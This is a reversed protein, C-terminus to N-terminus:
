VLRGVLHMGDGWPQFCGIIRQDQAGRLCTILSVWLSGWVGFSTRAVIPFTIHHMAGPRANAVIFPAAIGYGIWVCLWAQWWTMGLQVSSSVIMWSDRIM